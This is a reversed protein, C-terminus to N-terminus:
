GGTGAVSREMMCFIMSSYDGIMWWRKRWVLKSKVVEVRRTPLTSGAPKDTAEAQFRFEAQACGVKGERQDKIRKHASNFQRHAASDWNKFTFNGARSDAWLKPGKNTWWDWCNLLLLETFAKDSITREGCTSILDDTKMQKTWCSRHGCVTTMVVDFFHFFGKKGAGSNSQVNICAKKVSTL